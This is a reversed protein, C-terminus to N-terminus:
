GYAKNIVRKLLKEIKDDCSKCLGVTLGRNSESDDFENECYFENDKKLNSRQCIM